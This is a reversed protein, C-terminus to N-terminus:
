QSPHDKKLNIAEDEHMFISIMNGMGVRLQNFERVLITRSSIFLPNDDVIGQRIAAEYKWIASNVDIFAKIILDWALAPYREKLKVVADEFQELRIRTIPSVIRESKIKAIAYGDIIEAISKEM